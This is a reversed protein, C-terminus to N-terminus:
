SEVYFGTMSLELLIATSVKNVPLEIKYKEWWFVYKIYFSQSSFTGNRLRSIKDEKQLNSVEM